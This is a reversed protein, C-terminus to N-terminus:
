GAAYASSKKLIMYAYRAAGTAAEESFNPLIVDRGFVEECSLRLLPNKRSANGCLFLRNCDMGMKLYLEYMERCVGRCFGLSLDGPLFNNVTINEVAGRCLPNRRTGDFQTKVLLSDASNLADLGTRMMMDYIQEESVRVGLAACSQSFFRNLLSLSSGGCLCTGLMVYEGNMFPRVELGEPATSTSCVTSVQGSTGINIIVDGHREYLSFIGAQNDGIPMSVPVCGNMTGVFAEERIVRPLIDKDIGAAALKDESFVGKDLDFLGFSAANTPHTSPSKNGCLRMAIYDMITCIKHSGKPVLGECLNYYHTTLGYGTSMPSNTLRSLREAYSEDTGPIIRNGCGDQWTYLNSLLNGDKDLYLMGHMQGTIGVASIDPWKKLCTDVLKRCKKEIGRVSQQRQWPELGEINSDSHVSTAFLQTNNANDMVVCSISTTGLDLGLTKM